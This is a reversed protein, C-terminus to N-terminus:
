RDMEYAQGQYGCARCALLLLAPRIRKGGGERVYRGIQEVLDVDSRFQEEFLSEVRALDDEVLLLLEKLEAVDRRGGLPGAVSM